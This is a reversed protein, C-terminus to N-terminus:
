KFLTSDPHQTGSLISLTFWQLRHGSHLGCKQNLRAPQCVELESFPNPISVWIHQNRLGLEASRCAPRRIEPM